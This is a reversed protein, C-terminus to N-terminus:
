NRLDIYKEGQDGAPRKEGNTGQLLGAEEPLKDSKVEVVIEHPPPLSPLKGKKHLFYLVAGLLAILLICVIVAVIIVGKSEQPKQETLSGLGRTGSPSGWQAGWPSLARGCPVSVVKYFTYDDPPPNGDAECRLTVRDGEKVPHSPEVMSLKVKESAYFVNINIVGSEATKNVGLLNYSAECSFPAGRDEKTVRASLKSTLTILGSSEGVGLPSGQLCKRQDDDQLPSQNKYWTISPTPFGNRSICKTVEPIENSTVPIDEKILQIVPTEPAKYIHLETRNEGVGSSSAGVQCVFTRADQPTVKSIALTSDNVLEVRGEYETKEVIGKEQCPTPSSLVRFGAMTNHRRQPVLHCWLSQCWGCLTLRDAKGGPEYEVELVEPMS